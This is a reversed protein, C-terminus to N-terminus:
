EDQGRRVCLRSNRNECARPPINRRGNPARARSVPDPDIYVLRRDVQRYAPRGRIAALAETFPKNNLVSGDIFATAMPDHGAREYRRFNSHMFEARRTWERGGTALLRDVERIQAPPFAGPYASTARAAFAIPAAYAANAQVIGIVWQAADHLMAGFAAGAQEATVPGDLPRFTRRNAVITLAPRIQEIRALTAENFATCERYERKLALNRQVLTRAQELEAVPLAVGAFFAIERELREAAPTDAAVLSSVGLSLAVVADGRELTIGRM